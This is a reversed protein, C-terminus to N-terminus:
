PITVVAGSILAHEPLPDLDINLDSFAGPDGM